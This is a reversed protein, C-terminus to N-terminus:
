AVWMLSGVLLVLVGACFKCNRLFLHHERIVRAQHYRM